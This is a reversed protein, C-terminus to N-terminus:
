GAGTRRVAFQNAFCTSTMRPDELRRIHGMNAEFHASFTRPERTLVVGELYLADLSISKAFDV